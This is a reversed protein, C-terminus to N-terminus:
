SLVRNNFSNHYYRSTRHVLKTPMLNPLLAHDFNFPLVFGAILGRWLIRILISLGFGSNLKKQLYFKTCAQAAFAANAKQKHQKKSSNSNLRNRNAEKCPLKPTPNANKRWITQSTSNTAGPTPSSCKKTKTGTNM